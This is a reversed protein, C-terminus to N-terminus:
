AKQQYRYLILAFNLTSKYKYGWGNWKAQAPKPTGCHPCIPAQESVDRKCERCPKMSMYQAPSKFPPINEILQCDQHTSNIHSIQTERTLGYRFNPHGTIAIIWAEAIVIPYGISVAM